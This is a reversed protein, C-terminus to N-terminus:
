ASKRPAYFKSSLRPQCFARAPDVLVDPPIAQRGLLMRHTMAERNTLGVEIQWHRGDIAIRTEIIYRLEKEGNSSTVERMDKVPSTCTVVIGPRLPIPHVVFRVNLSIGSGFPEIARAHLASTRAGTDIKAKVAPLGLQPLAVWEKRGLIFTSNDIKEMWPAM